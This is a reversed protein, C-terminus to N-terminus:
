VSIKRRYFKHYTSYITVLIVTEILINLYFNNIFNTGKILLADSPDQPNYFVDVINGEAFSMLTKQNQAKSYNSVEFGFGIARSEYNKGDVQYSYNLIIKDQNITGKPGLSTGFTKLKSELITGKTKIWDNSSRAKLYNLTGLCSDCIFLIILFM